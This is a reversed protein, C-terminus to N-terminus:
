SLRVVCVVGAGSAKEEHDCVNCENVTNYRYGEGVSPSGLKPLVYILLLSLKIYIMMQLPSQHHNLKLKTSTTTSKTFNVTRNTLETINYIICCM